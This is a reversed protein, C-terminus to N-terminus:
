SGGKERAASAEGAAALAADLSEAAEAESGKGDRIWDRVLRLAERAEALAAELRKIEEM